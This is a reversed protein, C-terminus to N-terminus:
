GAEEARDGLAWGLAQEMELAGGFNGADGGVLKKTAMEMAVLTDFRKYQQELALEAAQM